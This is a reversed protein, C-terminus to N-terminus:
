YSLKKHADEFVITTKGKSNARSIVHQRLIDYEIIPAHFTNKGQTIIADGILIVKKEKPYYEITLAKAHLEPKDKQTVTWYHALQAPTGLAIAKLLKHQKDTYTKAHIARLHSDGQDVTVHGHYEGVGTKQDFEATDSNFFLPLSNKQASFGAISFFVFSAIALHKM